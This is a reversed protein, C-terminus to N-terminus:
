FSFNVANKSVFAHIDHCSANNFDLCVISYVKPNVMHGGVAAVMLSTVGDTHTEVGTSYDGESEKSKLLNNKYAESAQGRTPRSQLKEPPSSDRPNHQNHGTDMRTISASCSLHVDTASAVCLRM